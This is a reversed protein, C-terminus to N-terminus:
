IKLFSSKNKIFLDIANQAEEKNAYIKTLEKFKEDEFFSYGRVDVPLKINKDEWTFKIKYKGFNEPTVQFKPLTDNEEILFKNDLYRKELIVNVSQIIKKNRSWM